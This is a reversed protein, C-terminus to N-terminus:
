SYLFVTQWHGNFYGYHSPWYYFRHKHGVHRPNHWPVLFYGGYYFTREFFHQNLLFLLSFRAGYEGLDLYSGFTPGLSAYEYPLHHRQSHFSFTFDRGRRGLDEGPPLAAHTEEDGSRGEIEALGAELADQSNPLRSGPHFNLNEDVTVWGQRILANIQDLATRYDNLFASSVGVAGPNDLRLALTGDEQRVVYAGIRRSLAILRSLQSDSVVEVDETLGFRSRIEHQTLTADYEGSASPPNPLGALAAVPSLTFISAVFLIIMTPHGLQKWEPLYKM